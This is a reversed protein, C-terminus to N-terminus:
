ASSRNISGRGNLLAVSCPNLEPLTQAHTKRDTNCETMARISRQLFTICYNIGAISNFLLEKLFSTFFLKHAPSCLLYVSFLLFLYAPIENFCNPWNRYWSTKQARHHRSTGEQMGGATVAGDPHATLPQPKPVWPSVRPAPLLAPTTWGPSLVLLYTCGAAWILHWQLHM